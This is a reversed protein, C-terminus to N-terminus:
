NAISFGAPGSLSPVNPNSAASGGHTPQTQFTEGRLYRDIDSPRKHGDTPVLLRRNDTPKVLYPTVIIVLETERNRFRDSKFLAGLIPINGLGPLKRSVQDLNNQLLGAIAFSQGSGLEVTTEARRTTLGPIQIGNTNVSADASLQSVEPKVKLSIRDDALVIPTFALGIGFEKFEVAIRDKDAIPIPFEGGALFTATEGSLAILNPEALVSVFGETELADIAYNLDLNGTTIDGFINDAGNVLTPFEKIFSGPFLPDPILDVVNRGTAIGLGGNSGFFGGEWNVGLQKLMDRALEAFKVHLNVQTPTTVRLRNVVTQGEGVLQQALRTLEEADEPRQVYGSLFVMGNLTKVDIEADPIITSVLDQIQGVNQAVAINTSYVVNDKGDVAYLTTEGEGTGFIYLMRSSKIQVDAVKPNAIFVNTVGADLRVLMGKNVDLQITEDGAEVLNPNPSQAYAVAPLTSFLLTTGLLTKALSRGLPNKCLGSM